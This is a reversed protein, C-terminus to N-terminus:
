SQACVTPRPQAVAWATLAVLAAFSALSIRGGVWVSAPEYSYILTHEGANVAAARMQLNARLIPAPRGDVTLRWGSDFVEALVVIGPRRLRADLVVQAPGNYTVSVAEGPEASGGALYAALAGPESAEVLAGRKFDLGSPGRDPGVPEAPSRLLALLEDYWGSRSSELPPVLRGEHVVWARPLAAKNRLVQVDKTQVWRKREATGAQAAPARPDPYILETEDLFAAYSDRGTWDGAYCPVIVYRAGWLNLVRRAHYYV